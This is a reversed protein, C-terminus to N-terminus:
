IVVQHNKSTEKYNQIAWDIKKLMFTIDQFHNWNLEIVLMGTELISPLLRDYEEKISQFYSLELRSEMERNRQRCREYATEPSVNLYIIGEPMSEEFTRQAESLYRSEVDQAVIGAKILLRLFALDEFHSRDQWLRMSRAQDHHEKRKQLLHFQLSAGYTKMDRYFNVLMPDNPDEQVMGKGSWEMASSCFTTKGAAPIGCLAFHMNTCVPKMEKKKRKKLQILSKFFFSFDNIKRKKLSV